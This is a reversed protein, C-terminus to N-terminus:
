IIKNQILFIDCVPTEVKQKKFSRFGYKKINGTITARKEKYATCNLIHLFLEIQQRKYIIKYKRQFNM